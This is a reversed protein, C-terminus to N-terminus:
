HHPHGCAGVKSCALMTGCLPSLLCELLKTLPPVFNDSGSCQSSFFSASLPRLLCVQQLDLMRTLRRNLSTEGSYARITAVGDISEGLLAYIPSRNVSDLRKLERYTM